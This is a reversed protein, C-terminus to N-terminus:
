SLERLEQLVVPDIEAVGDVREELNANGAWRNFADELGGDYGLKGLRERLENALADDVTLWKDRPTEGFLAEHLRYFRRLEELPREHDEVRLEVVTDSLKAYGGDQEVVLLAASQQGRRDGGAAQAADLCDLLREALTGKSSEFTEAIADVTAASVLINGQAAYCPGTRGGAWELCEAGTFSASRGERDVVGLQRQDRGEDAATLREVVEEASLGERLLGLGEPGYRPNAYAQTAIAGVGPEAWPVVSGVGLFKSQTAVGWQGAELDCAAISYTAVLHSAM